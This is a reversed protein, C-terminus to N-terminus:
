DEANAKRGHKRNKNYQHKKQLTQPKQSLKAKEAKAMRGHKRNRNYKYKGHMRHNRDSVQRQEQIQM